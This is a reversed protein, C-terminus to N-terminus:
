VGTFLYALDVATNRLRSLIMLEKNSKFFQVSILSRHVLLVKAVVVMSRLKRWQQSRIPGEENQEEKKLNPKREKNRETCFNLKGKDTLVKKTCYSFTKQLKESKKKINEILRTKQLELTFNIKTKLNKRQIM